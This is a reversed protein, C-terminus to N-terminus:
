LNRICLTDEKDINRTDSGKKGMSGNHLLAIHIIVFDACLSECAISSYFTFINVTVIKEM